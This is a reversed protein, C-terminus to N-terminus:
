RQLRTPQLARHGRKQWVPLHVPTRCSCFCPDVETNPCSDVQERLRCSSRVPRNSDCPRRCLKRSSFRFRAAARDHRQAGGSSSFGSAFSFAVNVVSQRRQLARASMAVAEAVQRALLRVDHVNPQVLGTASSRCRGYDRRARRVRCGSTYDKPRGPIREAAGKV